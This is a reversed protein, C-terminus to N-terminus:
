AAVERAAAWARVKEPHWRKIQRAGTGRSPLVIPRPFDPQTAAYDAAAESIVLYEAVHSITWLSDTM